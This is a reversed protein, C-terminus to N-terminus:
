NLSPDRPFNSLIKYENGMSRLVDSWLNEPAHEFIWKKVDVRISPPDQHVIWSKESIEFELQHPDWGAYGAYFRIQNKKVQNSDILLRLHDFDGGWWLNECIHSSNELKNGLTHIYSLTDTEVPGGFYLQADFYPFEDVAENLSFETVKNLILGMAGKTNLHTILITSREFYHDLLFPDAVIIGGVSPKPVRNRKKMKSLKPPEHCKKKISCKKIFSDFLARATPARVTQNGTVFDGRRKEVVKEKKRRGM